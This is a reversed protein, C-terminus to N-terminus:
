GCLCRLTEARVEEVGAKLGAAIALTFLEQDKASEGVGALSRAFTASMVASYFEYQSSLVFPAVFSLLDRTRDLIIVHSATSLSLNASIKAVIKCISTIETPVVACTGDTKDCFLPSFWRVM